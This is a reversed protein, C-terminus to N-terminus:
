ASSTEADRKKANSHLLIETLKDWHKRVIARILQSDQIQEKRSSPPAWKTFLTALNAAQKIFWAKGPEGSYLHSIQDPPELQLILLWGRGYPDRWALNPSEEV